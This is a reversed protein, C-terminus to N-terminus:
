VHARGIEVNVITFDVITIFYAVVLLTFASWRRGPTRTEAAPTSAREANLVNPMNDEETHAVLLQVDKASM